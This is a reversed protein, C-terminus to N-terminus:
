YGNIMRYYFNLGITLILCYVVLMMVILVNELMKEVLPIKLLFNKILKNATFRVFSFNKIIENNILYDTRKGFLIEKRQFQENESFIIKFNKYIKRFM